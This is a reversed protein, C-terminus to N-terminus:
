LLQVTNDTLADALFLKPDDYYPALEVLDKELLEITLRFQQMRQNLEKIQPELEKQYNKAKEKEALEAHGEKLQRQCRKIWENIHDQISHTKEIFEILTVRRDVHLTSAWCLYFEKAAQVRNDRSPTESPEFEKTFLYGTPQGVKKAHLSSM